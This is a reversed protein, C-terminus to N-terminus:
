VPFCDTLRLFPSTARTAPACHSSPPLFHLTRDRPVRANARLPESVSWPGRQLWASFTSSTGCPSPSVLHLSMVPHSGPRPCRLRACAAQHPSYESRPFPVRPMSLPHSPFPPPSCPESTKDEVVPLISNGSESILSHFSLDSHEPLPPAMLGPTSVPLLPDRTDWCLHLLRARCAAGTLLALLPQAASFTRPHPLCGDGCGLM